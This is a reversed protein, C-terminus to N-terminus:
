GKVSQSINARFTSAIDTVSLPNLMSVVKRRENYFEKRLILQDKKEWYMSKQWNIGAQITPELMPHILTLNSVKVPLTIYKLYVVSLSSNNNVRLKNFERIIRYGRSDVERYGFMGGTDEGHASYALGGSLDVGSSEAYVDAATQFKTTLAWIAGAVPAIADTHITLSVWSFGGSNVLSGVVYAAGSVWAPYDYTSILESHPMQSLKNGVAEYLGIEEVYDAPLTAEFNSDLTLPVTTMTPLVSLQLIKLIDRGLALFTIYYHLPLRNKHLTKRVVEDLTLTTM